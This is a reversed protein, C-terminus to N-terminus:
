IWNVECKAATLFITFLEEFLRMLGNLAAGLQHKRDLCFKQSNCMARKFLWM